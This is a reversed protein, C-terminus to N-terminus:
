AVRIVELGPTETIDKQLDTIAILKDGTTIIGKEKLIEIASNLDDKTNGTWKQLYFPEIWYLINAYLETDPYLTFAFV